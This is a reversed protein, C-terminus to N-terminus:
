MSALGEVTFPIGTDLSQPLYSILKARDKNRFSGIPKGWLSVSGSGPKLIGSLLKLVTSKGSGNSGLLGIFEAEGAKLSMDRIFPEKSYSFNVGKLSLIEPAIIKPASSM